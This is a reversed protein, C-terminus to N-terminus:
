KLTLKPLHVNPWEAKVAFRDKMVENWVNGTYNPCILSILRILVDMFRWIIDRNVGRVVYSM